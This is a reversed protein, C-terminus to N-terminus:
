AEKKLDDLASSIEGKQEAELEKRYAEVETNIDKEVKNTNFAAVLSRVFDKIVARQQPNLNLYSQIIKRDLSDLNYEAALRSVIASDNEIFMSGIGNRLWEENVNFTQCIQAIHIDKPVRQGTEFMALTSHGIKARLSFDRQNLGLAKRLLRIRDNM